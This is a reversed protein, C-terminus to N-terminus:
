KRILVIGTHSVDKLRVFGFESPPVGDLVISVRTWSAPRLSENFTVEKSKAQENIPKGKKDVNGWDITAKLGNVTTSLTNGFEFTVRSGNAYPKIDALRVTLIGLDWRLPVYGNSGPTLYAFKDIDKLFNNFEIDSIQNRLKEVEGELAVIRANVENIKKESESNLSIKECGLLLIGYCFLLSINVIKM